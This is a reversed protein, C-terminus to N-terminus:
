HELWNQLQKDVTAVTSKSLVYSKSGSGNPQIDLQIKDESLFFPRKKNFFTGVAKAGDTIPVGYDCAKDIFAQCRGSWKGEKELIVLAAKRIPSWMYEALNAAKERSASDDPDTVTFHGNEELKVDLEPMGPISKGRVAIHIIEDSPRKRYLVIMQTTAGQLGTSGLINDFPDDEVTKKDHHVLIISIHRRNALENLSDFDKYAQEYENRDKRRDPRIKQFIDVVVIGIDPDQELYNEIQEIFGNNLMDAENEIYFKDSIKEEELYQVLRQKQLTENTELDLYLTSCKKTKRGLFEEGKAAAVCVALAFWSKGTKPKASLICTGEVLLPEKDGVGLFVIPDPIDKKLLESAKKLKRFQRKKPEEQAEPEKKDAEKKKGKEYRLIVSEVTRKVEDDGLPPDLHTNNYIQAYEWIAADTEGDSQLRSVYKFLKNNRGGESTKSTFDNKEKQRDHNTNKMEMSALFFVVDSDAKPIVPDDEEIDWIYEKRTKGHVSPPAVICGGEGRVDVGELCGVQNHYLNDSQFYLHKGGRGTEVTAISDIPCIDNQDCWDELSKVGDLGKEDDIDLDIVVLGGSRKGTVIAVNAAPFQKWWGKITDPDTLEERTATEWKVLPTKTKSIPIVSWGRAAYNLAAELIPNDM